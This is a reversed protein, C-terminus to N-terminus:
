SNADNLMWQIHVGYGIQPNDITVHSVAGVLKNNQIIPSGSMGQIIGGCTNLLRSDTVKIKLGKINRSSQKNVEIIEIDYAGIKEDNVVTLIKANGVKVEEQTAVEILEKNLINRATITGYLGTALNDNLTGIKDQGITARKEGPEGPLAKKISDISSLLLDGRINGIVVKQDIIGHGLSAFNKTKPDIFTLTGVGVIKDKIYLGLSKENFKTELVQINTDFVNSGRAITLILDNDNNTSLMEILDKNSNIIRNDIELIKDGVEIDSKQWPAKKGNKTEVEFKGAVYVGTELKIGIAEGGPIVYIGSSAKVSSINISFILTCILFFTLFIKKILKM